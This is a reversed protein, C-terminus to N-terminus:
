GLSLPGPGPGGMAVNPYMERLMASQAQISPNIGIPVHGPGSGSRRSGRDLGQDVGLGLPEWNAQVNLGGRSIPPPSALMRGGWGPAPSRFVSNPDGLGKHSDRRYARSSRRVAIGRAPSAFPSEEVMQLPPPRPAHNAAHSPEPHRDPVYPPVEPIGPGSIMRSQQLLETLADPWVGPTAQPAAGGWEHMDSAAKSAPTNGGEPYKGWDTGSRKPKAHSSQGRASALGGSPEEKRRPSAGPAPARRPSQSPRERPSTVPSARPRQGGREEARERLLQECVRVLSGIQERLDADMVAQPSLNRPSRSGQQRKEVPVEEVAALQERRAPAHGRRRSEEERAWTKGGEARSTDEQSKRRASEWTDNTDYSDVRERVERREARDRRRRRTRRAETRKEGSELVTSLGDPGDGHDQPGTLWPVPSDRGERTSFSNYNEDRWTRKDRETAQFSADQGLGNSEVERRRRRRRVEGDWPGATSDAARLQTYSGARTPSSDGGFEKSRRRRAHPTKGAKPAAAENAAAVAAAKTAQTAAEQRHREEIERLERALRREERMEEERKRRQEEEKRFKQEQIQEALMQAQARKRHREKEASRDVGFPDGRWVHSDEPPLKAQRGSLPPEVPLVAPLSPVATDANAAVAAQDLPHPDSATQTGEEVVDVTGVGAHRVGPDDVEASHEVIVLPRGAAKLAHLPKVAKVEEREKSPKAKAPLERQPSKAQNGLAKPETPIEKEPLKAPARGVEEQLRQLLDASVVACGPPYPALAPALAPLCKKVKARDLKSPVRAKRANQAPQPRAM